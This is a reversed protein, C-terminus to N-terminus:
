DSLRWAAIALCCWGGIFALGGIPTVIGLIPSGSLAMLYLSVSFLLIGRPSEACRHVLAEISFNGVVFAEDIHVWPPRQPPDITAGSSKKAEREWRAVAM